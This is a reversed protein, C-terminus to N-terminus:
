EGEQTDSVDEDPSSQQVDNGLAASDQTPSADDNSETESEDMTEAVRAVQVLKEGEQVKILTVGQTNRGLVSVESSRTRVLTGQDSILIVEDGDFVQVAGILAGNRESMQIAIVGKGGRGRVPYDENRSQKGFGNESATLIRGEPQPMILSIVSAGEAVRIGRVGRATRGMPRVDDEDFRVALGNDAFLMIHQNGDTVTAGILTDGEDLGLAILGSTRPRAFATLPTKKVTGNATAMFIFHGEQYGGEPLPLIATLREGDELPLINVIPRGRAARSAQPIEFVRLWYVKGKNSFCLITDHSSTVLLHEVFDDEKVGTAAKGRGGRRQAQYDSVPQTKAYGGHSITVVMDEEPILDAVTLDQRSAIIESRREDGYSELVQALEERIVEMLRQSSGLIDLLEAIRELLAQYEAM